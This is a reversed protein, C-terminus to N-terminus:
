RLFDVLSPQVVKATAALAAQYATQQLTLETITQPLDIDEVDSVQKTLDVVGSEANQQLKALQNYRAGVSSLGSQLLHSATTLKGLDDALGSPNTRLDTAVKALLTFLQQDNEGFVDTAKTDVRVTSNASGQREVRGLDGAYSGDQRFAATGKTTGGFVPRDLYTSNAVGILSSRINDIELAIAERAQQTGSSGSSLGALVLEQARSVQGMASTLATDAVSLWGLGDDANRSFQRLNAIDSRYQMSMVAGGPSDSARAVEKGSSLKNQLDGLKAINAQLGTLVNTAISRETVRFGSM